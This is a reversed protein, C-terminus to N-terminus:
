GQGIITVKKVGETALLADLLASLPKEMQSTDISIVINAIGSLPITQSLTLVNGDSRAIASLVKSLMGSQHELDISVTAFRERQLNELEFIGDKYKYFASRSLDVQKVAEHITQVKGHMLLQKAQITKQLAEPLIDERVIWFKEKSHFEPRVIFDQNM